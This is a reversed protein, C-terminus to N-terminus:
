FAFELQKEKVTFPLLDEQRYNNAHLITNNKENIWHVVYCHSEFVSERGNDIVIGFDSDKSQGLYCSKPNMLVKSGVKYKM